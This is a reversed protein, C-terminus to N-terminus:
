HSGGGVIQSVTTGCKSCVGVARHITRIKTKQSVRHVNKAPMPKKCKMCRIVKPLGKSAGGEMSANNSNNSPAKTPMTESEMMSSNSNSSNMESFGGKLSKKASGGKLTRKNNCSSGGKLSKKAACSGGKQKKSNM